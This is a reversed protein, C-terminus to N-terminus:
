AADEQLYGNLRDILADLRALAGDELFHITEHHMPRNGEAYDETSPHIDVEVWDWPAGYYFFAHHKGAMTVALCTSFLLEVAERITDNM